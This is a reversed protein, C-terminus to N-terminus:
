NPTPIPNGMCIFINFIEFGYCIAGCNTHTYGTLEFGGQCKVKTSKSCLIQLDNFNQCLLVYRSVM